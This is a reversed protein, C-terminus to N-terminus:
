EANISFRVTQGDGFKVNVKWLGSMTLNSKVEYRGTTATPTVDAGGM